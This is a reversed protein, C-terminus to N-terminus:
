TVFNALSMRADIENQGYILIIFCSADDNKTYGVRSM